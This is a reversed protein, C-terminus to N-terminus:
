PAHQQGERKGEDWCRLLHDSVGVTGPGVGATPSSTSYMYVCNFCKPLNTKVNEMTRNLYITKYKDDEDKYYNKLEDYELLSTKIKHEPEKDKGVMSLVLFKDKVLYMHNNMAYYCLARHNQNKHVYKMFCTKNIDYAYHSIGYKRCFFDIFAPTFANEINYVPKDQPSEYTKINNIVQKLYGIENNYYQLKYHYEKLTPKIMPINIIYDKIKWADFITQKFGSKNIPIYINNTDYIKKNSWADFIKQKFQKIDDIDNNHQLENYEEKYQKLIAEANQLENTSNYKPNIIMDGFDSEIYEPENTTSGGVLRGEPSENDEVDEFGHFEKNLKTIKKKNLKLEKGYLGVLSDIVCTNETTLFKTEQKTFNYELHGAQRLPMTFPNSSTIQSGVVPDDIFQVNDVNVGALSSYEEYEM